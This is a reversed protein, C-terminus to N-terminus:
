PGPMKAAWSIPGPHETWLGRNNRLLYDLYKLWFFATRVGAMVMKRSTTGRTFCVALYELSWLLATGPGAVMGSSTERFHNLLRRHGSLTYRTFDYAGEHVQQMFPIESYILGGDVLVRYIEHAVREPYLVHELVATTIVGQFVGNAFPLEHADCFLDVTAHVDIDCYVFQVNGLRSFRDNLLKKQQGGGVVLVAAKETQRLADAFRDLMDRSSMNVWPLPVFRAVKAAPKRYPVAPLDRYAAIPFVDNDHRILVPKGMVIPFVAACRSCHCMDPAFILTGGRCDPCRCHTHLFNGVFRKRDDSRYSGGERDAQRISAQGDNAARAALMEDYVNEVKRASQRDYFGDCVHTAQEPSRRAKESRAASRCNTRWGM